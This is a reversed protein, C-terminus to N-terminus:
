QETPAARREPSTIMEDQEQGERDKKNGIEKREQTAELLRESRLGMSEAAVQLEFSNQRGGERGKPNAFVCPATFSSASTKLAGTRHACSAARSFHDYRRAGAGGQREQKRDGQRFTRSASRPGLLNM